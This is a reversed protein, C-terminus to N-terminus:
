VLFYDKQKDSQPNCTKSNPASSEEREESIDRQASEIVANCFIMRGSSTHKVSLVQAKITENIFDGGGNVVVMTGDDLYGVGQLTEKGYRQIKIDITEGTQMLPKLANALSHINIVQIGEIGAQQVKNIDATLLHANLLRALAIVQSTSDDIEPFDTDNYALQLSSMAELRKIAELARRAKNRIIDDTSEHQGQLEKVILQPIVLQEDVIGSAALDIVRPDSLASADLVIQRNQVENKSQLHIFPISFQIEEASRTVIDTSIYCSFLLFGLHCLTYAEPLELALYRPFIPSAVLWLAEGLLYGTFLSLIGLNLQKSSVSKLLYSCGIMSLAFFSGVALSAIAFPTGQGLQIASVALPLILSILILFTKLPRSALM